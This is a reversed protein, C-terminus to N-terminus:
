FNFNQSLWKDSKEWSPVLTSLIKMISKKEYLHLSNELINLYDDFNEILDIENKGQFILPNKTPIAEAPNILLEEYLKEGPRLGTTIIEIDGNKNYKNKVTKGSLKIM